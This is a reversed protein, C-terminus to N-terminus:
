PLYKLAESYRAELTSATTLGRVTAGLQEPQRRHHQEHTDVIRDLEV